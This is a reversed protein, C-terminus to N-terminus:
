AENAHIEQQNGDEFLSLIYEKLDGWVKEVENENVCDTNRFRPDLFSAFIHYPHLSIYRNNRGIRVTQYYTVVGDGYRKNLDELMKKGLHQVPYFLKNPQTAKSFCKRIYKICYPVVSITPYKDGELLKQVQSMPHLLFSVDKLVMKHIPSLDNCSGGLEGRSILLTAHDGVGDDLYRTLSRYTSWWRTINDQLLKLAKLNAERMSNLLKELGQTSSNFFQMLERFAKMSGNGNPLNRDERSLIATRHLQHDVCYLHETSYNDLLLKGFKGMNGTTDTVVAVVKEPQLNYM